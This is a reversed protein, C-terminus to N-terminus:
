AEERSLVLADPSVTLKSKRDVRLISTFLRARKAIARLTDDAWDLACDADIDTNASAHRGALAIM